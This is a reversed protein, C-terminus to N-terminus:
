VLQLQESASLTVAFGPLKGFRGVRLRSAMASVIANAIFVGSGSGPLASVLPQRAHGQLELARRFMRPTLDDLQGYVGAVIGYKTRHAALELRLSDVGAAPLAEILTYGLSVMANQLAQRHALVPEYRGQVRLTLEVGYQAAVAQLQHATDYLVASVSVPELALKAEPQLSLRLSLLYSDLLQLSMDATDRVDRWVPSVAAGALQMGELEATRAIYMLPLKLEEALTLFLRGLQDTQGAQGVGGM